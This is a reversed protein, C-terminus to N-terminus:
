IELEVGGFIAILCVKTLNSFERCSQYENHSGIIGM